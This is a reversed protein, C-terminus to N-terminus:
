EGRQAKEVEDAFAAYKDPDNAKSNNSGLAPRERDERCWYQWTRYPKRGAKLKAPTFWDRLAYAKREALDEPISEKVRWTEATKLAIKWGPVSYGVAYWKPWLEQPTEDEVSSAEELDPVTRNPQTRNPVTPLPVNGSRASVTGGRRQRMAEAKRKRIEVLRGAYDMWDHIFPHTTLYGPGTSDGYDIFGATAMHSFFEEPLGEWMAAAAVDERDFPALDGDPAYDLAWWWLCHLHGIAAPVSVGLLRALRRTKPHDKLAQHSEIWAM